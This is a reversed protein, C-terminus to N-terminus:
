QAKRRIVDICAEARCVRWQQNIDAPPRREFSVVLQNNTAHPPWGLCDGLPTVSQRMTATDNGVAHMAVFNALAHRASQTVAANVGSVQFSTHRRPLLPIERRTPSASWGFVLPHCPLM